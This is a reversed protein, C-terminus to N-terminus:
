IPRFLPTGDVSVIMDHGDIVANLPDSGYTRYIVYGVGAIHEAAAAREGSGRADLELQAVRLAEHETM